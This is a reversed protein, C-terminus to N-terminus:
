GRAIPQYDRELFVHLARFGHQVDISESESRARDESPVSRWAILWDSWVAPDASQGDADTAGGSVTFLVDIDGRAVFDIAYNLVARLASVASLLQAHADPYAEPLEAVQASSVSSSGPM